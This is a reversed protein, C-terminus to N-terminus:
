TPSMILLTMILHTNRARTVDSRVHAAVRQTAGERKIWHTAYSCVCASMIKNCVTQAKIWELDHDSVFMIWM